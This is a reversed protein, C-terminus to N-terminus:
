SVTIATWKPETWRAKTGISFERSPETLAVSSASAMSVSSTAMTPSTMWGIRWQRIARAGSSSESISVTTEWGWAVAWHARNM